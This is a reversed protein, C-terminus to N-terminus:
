NMNNSDQHPYIIKKNWEFERKNVFSSYKDQDFFILYFILMILSLLNLYTSLNIRRTRLLYNCRRRNIHVLAVCPTCRLDILYRTDKVPPDYQLAINIACYVDSFSKMRITRRYHAREKRHLKIFNEKDIFRKFDWKYWTMLIRYICCLLRGFLFNIRIHDM